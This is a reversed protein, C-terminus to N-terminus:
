NKKKYQIYFIVLIVIVGVVLLTNFRIKINNWLTNMSKQEVDKSKYTSDTQQWHAGTVLGRSEAISDFASLMVKLEEEQQRQYEESSVHSWERKNRTTTRDITTTKTGASDVVEVIHEIITEHENLSDIAAAATKREQTSLLATSDKIVKVVNTSDHQVASTSDYEAKTASTAAKHTTACATLILALVCMLLKGKARYM